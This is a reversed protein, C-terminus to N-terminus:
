CPFNFMLCSRTCEMARNIILPGSSSINRYIEFDMKQFPLATLKLEHISNTCKNEDREREREWERERVCVCCLSLCMSASRCLYIWSKVYVLRSINVNIIQKAQRLEKLPLSIPFSFNIPMRSKCCIEYLFTSARPNIVPNWNRCTVGIDKM